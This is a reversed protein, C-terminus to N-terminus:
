EGNRTYEFVAYYNKNIPTLIKFCQQDWWSLNVAKNKLIYGEPVFKFTEASADGIVWFREFEKLNLEPAKRNGIKFFKDFGSMDAILPEKLRSGMIYQTAFAHVNEFVVPAKNKLFPAPYEASIGKSNLYFVGSLILIIATVNLARKPLTINMYYFILPLFATLYRYHTLERWLVPSITLVILLGLFISVIIKVQKDSFDFGPKLFFRLAMIILFAFIVAGSRVRFINLQFCIFLIFFGAAFYSPIKKNNDQSETKADKWLAILYILVAVLLTEQFWFRFILNVFEYSIWSFNYVLSFLWFLIGEDIKRVHLYETLFWLVALIFFSILVVTKSKTQRSFFTLCFYPLLIFFSYDAYLGILFVLSFIIKCKINEYIGAQEGIILLLSAMFLVLGYMRSFVFADLVAASCVIAYSFLTSKKEQQLYNVFIMAFGAGFFYNVIRVNLHNDTGAIIQVIKQLLHYLPPHGIGFNRLKIIDSFTYGKAYIWSFFEDVHFPKFVACIWYCVSFILWSWFLSKIKESKENQFNNM